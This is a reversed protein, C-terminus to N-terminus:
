SRGRLAAGVRQAWVPAEGAPARELDEIAALLEARRVYRRRGVFFTSGLDGRLMARRATPLSVGLAVAVDETNMLEPLLARRGARYIQRSPQM